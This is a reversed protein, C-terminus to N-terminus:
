AMKLLFFYTLKFFMSQHSRHSFKGGIQDIILMFVFGLVLTVGIASHATSEHNHSHENELLKEPSDIGKKIKLQESAELEHQKDIASKIPEARKDRKEILPLQYLNGGIASAYAGTLASRKQLNRRNIVPVQNNNENLQNLFIEYNKQDEETWTSRKNIVPVQNNNENLQNLFIEYNKKDEDTWASRKNIIPIHNNNESLQNLFIEYNKKDEETLVSRKNIVPVQNITEGLQNLFIEYDKKDQETIIARKNIVDVHNNNQNLANM